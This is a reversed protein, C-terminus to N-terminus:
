WVRCIVEGGVREAIAQHHTLIGKPTSVIFMGMLRSMRKLDEKNAYVRLGSKSIRSLGTIASRNESDYRLYLRLLKQRNDEVEVFNKIYNRRLLVNVIEKKMSSSPIDVKSHKARYANRIRTLLDAIPDVVKSM